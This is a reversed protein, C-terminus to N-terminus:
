IAELEGLPQLLLDVGAPHTVMAQRVLASDILHSRGALDNLTTAPKQDLIAALQPTSVGLESLSIRSPAHAAMAFSLGSAITTVGTGATASLVSVLRGASYSAGGRKALRQFSENLRYILRDDTDEYEIYDHAGHRLVDVIISTDIHPGLVLVPINLRIAEQFFETVKQSCDRCFYIIIDPRWVALRQDVSGVPICNEGDCQAGAGHIKGRLTSLQHVSAGDHAIIVQLLNNQTATLTTM